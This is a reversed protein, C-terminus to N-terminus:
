RRWIDDKAESMDDTQTIDNREGSNFPEQMNLRGGAAPSCISRSLVTPPKLQKERLPWLHIAVFSFERLRVLLSWTDSAFRPRSGAGIPNSVIRHPMM